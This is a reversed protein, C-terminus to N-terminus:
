IFTIEQWISSFGSGLCSLGLVVNSLLVSFRSNNELFVSFRISFFRFIRLGCRFGFGFFRLRKACFIALVEFGFIEIDGAYLSSLQLNWETRKRGCYSCILGLSLEKTKASFRKVVPSYQTVNRHVCDCHKSFPSFWNEKIFISHSGTAIM